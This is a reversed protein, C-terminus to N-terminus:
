RIPKKDTVYDYPWFGNNEGDAFSALFQAYSSGRSLYNALDLFRVNGNEICLYSDIKKIVYGTKDREMKMALKISILDIDYNSSCFGLVLFRSVYQEFMIMERKVGEVAHKCTKIISLKRTKDFIKFDIINCPKYVVCCSDFDYVSDLIVTDFQDSGHEKVISQECKHLLHNWEQEKCMLQYFIIGM